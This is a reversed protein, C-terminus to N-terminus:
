GVLPQAYFTGSGSCSVLLTSDFRGPSIFHFTDDFLFGGNHGVTLNASASGPNFFPGYINFSGSSPNVTVSGVERLTKATPNYYLTETITGFNVIFGGQGFGSPTLNVETYGSIPGSYSYTQTQSYGTVPGLGLLVTATVQLIRSFKMMKKAQNRSSPHRRDLVSAM